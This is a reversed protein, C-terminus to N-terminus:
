ASSTLNANWPQFQVQRAIASRHHLGHRTKRRMMPAPSPQLQIVATEQYAIYIGDSDAYRNAGTQAVDIL